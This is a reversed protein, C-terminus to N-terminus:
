VASDRSNVGRPSSFLKLESMSPRKGSAIRLTSRARHRCPTECVAHPRNPFEGPRGRRRDALLQSGPARIPQGRGHLAPGSQALATLSQRSGCRLASLRATRRLSRAAGRRWVPPQAGPAVRSGNAGIPAGGGRQPAKPCHSALVRIGIADRSGSQKKV